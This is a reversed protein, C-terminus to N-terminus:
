APKRQLFRPGLTATLGLLLLVWTSSADPVSSTSQRVVIYAPGNLGSVLSANITAGTTANYEGITGNFFGGNNTTAVFLNGGALAIGQPNILGSVLSANVTAGTTANYEGITNGDANTVFIQGGCCLQQLSILLSLGLASAIPRFPAAATLRSLPFYSLRKM